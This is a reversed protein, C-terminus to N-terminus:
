VTDTNYWRHRDPFETLLILVLLTFWKHSLCKMGSMRHRRQLM